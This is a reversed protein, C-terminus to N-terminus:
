SKGEIVPPKHINGEPTEHEARLLKPDIPPSTLAKVLQKELTNRSIPKALFGHIGLDAAALLQRRGSHGTLVIVPIHRDAPNSSNRIHHLCEFGNMEPMELDLIILDIPFARKSLEDLAEKGNKAQQVRGVGIELLVRSILSRVFTEDDVIMMSFNKFHHKDM